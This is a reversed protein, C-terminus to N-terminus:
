PRKYLSSVSASQSHRRVSNAGSTIDAPLNQQSALPASGDNNKLSIDIAVHTSSYTARGLKAGEPSTGPMLSLDGCTQTGDWGTSKTVDIESSNIDPGIKDVPSIGIYARASCHSIVIAVIGIVTVKSSVRPLIRPAENLTV